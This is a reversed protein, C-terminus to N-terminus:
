TIGVVNKGFETVNYNANVGIKKRSIFGLDYMRALMGTRYTNAMKVTWKTPDLTAMKANLSDPTNLGSEIWQIVTMMGQWEIPINTKIHDILFQREEQSFLAPSFPNEDLIPNKMQAFAMGQPSLAVQNNEIVVFGLDSLAGVSNGQSDTYGIFHHIFRSRSKEEDKPLGASFAEGWKREVKEDSESLIQKMKSAERACKNQFEVLKVPASNNKTQMLALYRLAFKLTFFKNYQGWIYYNKLPKKLSVTNIKDFSIPNNVIEIEVKEQKLDKKFPEERRLKEPSKPKKIEVDVFDTQEGKELEIQNEIAALIFNSISSGQNVEKMRKFLEENIDVLIKM